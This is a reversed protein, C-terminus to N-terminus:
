SRNSTKTRDLNGDKDEDEEATGVQTIPEVQKITEGGGAPTYLCRKGEKRHWVPRNKKHIYDLLQEENRGFVNKLRNEKKVELDTQM